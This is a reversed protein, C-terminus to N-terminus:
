CKVMTLKLRRKFGATHKHDAIIGELDGSQYYSYGRYFIVMIHIFSVKVLNYGAKNSKPRKVHLIIDTVIM